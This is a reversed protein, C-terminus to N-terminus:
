TTLLGAVIVGLLIGFMGAVSCCVIMRLIDDVARLIKQDPTVQSPMIREYVPFLKVGGLVVVVLSVGIIIALAM